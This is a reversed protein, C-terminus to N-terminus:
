SSPKLEYNRIKEYLTIRAMGLIEATRTKNWGTAELVRYIHAKEVESLSVLEQEVAAPTTAPTNTLGLDDPQIETGATLLLARELANRLERVNGPWHHAALAARAEPSLAPKARGTTRALDELLFNAIAELDDAHDRLPPTHIEVVKLRYLLDSRFRGSKALADLDRNTAALFRVDAQVEQQGGVRFFRKEELLRLLMAQVDIPLEGIEDLFLTGGHALEVLGMRQQDAGTFAGKEHGFIESLVVSPPLAGCNLAVFPQNARASGEHIGRAVLEKGTGSEGTILVTADVQAAKLITERLQRMPESEGVLRLSPSAKRLQENERALNEREWLADAALGIQRAAANLFSLDEPHIPNRLGKSAVYLAGSRGRLPIPACAIRLAGAAAISESAALDPEAQIDNALVAESARLVRRVVTWSFPPPTGGGVAVSATPKLTEASSGLIVHGFDLSLAGLITELVGRFMARTNDAQSIGSLIGYLSQLHRRVIEVELSEPRYEVEKADITLEVSESGIYTTRFPEPSESGIELRLLIRGVVVTDGAKLRARKIKSGNVFTGNTSDLDRVQVMNQVIEFECHLRSVGEESLTIDADPSRGVTLKQHIDRSHEKGASDFYVLRMTPLTM